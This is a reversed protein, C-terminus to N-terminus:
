LPQEARVGLIALKTDARMSFGTEAFDSVVSRYLDVARERDGSFEYCRAADMMLTARMDGISRDAAGGYIEAAAVYDEKVELIRALLVEVNVRAAFDPNGAMLSRATEEAEPYRGMRYLLNATFYAASAGQNTGRYEEAVGQFAELPIALDPDKAEGTESSTDTLTSALYTSMAVRLAEHADRERNSRSWMMGFVIVAVFLIAGGAYIITNINEKTLNMVRNSYSLIEDPDKAKKRPIRKKVYSM